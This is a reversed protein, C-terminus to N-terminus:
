QRTITVTGTDLTQDQLRLIYGGSLENLSGGRCGYAHPLLFEFEYETDAPINFRKGGYTVTTDQSVTGHAIITALWEDTKSDNPVISASLSVEEQTDPNYKVEVTGGTFKGNSDQTLGTISINASTPLTVSQLQGEWNGSLNPKEGSLCGGSAGIIFVAVVVLLAIKKWM